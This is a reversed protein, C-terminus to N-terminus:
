RSEEKGGKKEGEEENVPGLNIGCCGELGFSVLQELSYTRESERSRLGSRLSM